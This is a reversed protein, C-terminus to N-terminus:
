RLAVPTGGALKTIYAHVATLEDDDLRGVTRWPMMLPDLKKGFPTTGTRLAQIFQEATWGKVSHLNPGPPPGFGGKGGTLNPGHCEACGVWSVIYEGYEATPGRPPAAVTVPAEGQARPLLGAGMMIMALYTLRERPTENQVAPQSRLYAVVAQIDDDSLNRIGLTSMVVLRRGDPDVGERIARFLQGDSWDKTPGAPTLNVPTIDGVPFPIEEGLNKGGSLPVSENLSHCGSCLSNAIHQGRAIREPSAAISMQRVPRGLKTHAYAIGKIGAGSAFSFVIAFLAALPTGVWKVLARKSHWARFSLWALLAAVGLNVALGLVNPLM